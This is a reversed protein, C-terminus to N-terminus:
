NGPACYHYDRTRWLFWDSVCNMLVGVLREKPVTDLAQLCLKRNTHDPRVVVVVGDCHAQILEYDAVTAMPPADFVVYKFQRRVSACLSAWRSSDLLETPNTIPKGGPLVCFNPFQDLRVIAETLSCVGSLVDALGPTEPIGLMKAIQSRRLDADVLLIQEESKLSLAGALNISTVTKGDGSGASSIVVLRPHQPHQALKTRAVRYQEGAQSHPDDFPLIPTDVALRIAVTRIGAGNAQGHAAVPPSIRPAEVASAPAAMAHEAVAADAELPFAEATQRVIDEVMEAGGSAVADETLLPLALDAVEGETRKLAAFLKSM